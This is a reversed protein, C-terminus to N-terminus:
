YTHKIQHVIKIRNEVGQAWQVEAPAEKWNEATMPWLIVFVLAVRVVAIMVVSLLCFAFLLLLLMTFNWGFHFYSVLLVLCIYPPLFICSEFDFISTKPDETTCCNSYVEREAMFFGKRQPSRM